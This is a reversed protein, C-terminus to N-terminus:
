EGGKTETDPSVYRIGLPHRAKDHRENAWSAPQFQFDIPLGTIKALRESIATTMLLWRNDHEWRAGQIEATPFLTSFAEDSMMLRLDVDRWDPHELASGVLYLGYADFSEVIPMVAQNLAFYDTAHLYNIKSM